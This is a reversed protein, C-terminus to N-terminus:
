IIGKEIKNTLERTSLRWLAEEVEVSDLYYTLM